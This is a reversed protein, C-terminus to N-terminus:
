SIKNETIIVMFVEWGVLCEEEWEGMCVGEMDEVMVAMDEGTCVAAMAEEM